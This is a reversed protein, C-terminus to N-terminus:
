WHGTTDWRRTLERVLAAADAQTSPREEIRRVLEELLAVVDVATAQGDEARRAIDIFEFFTLRAQAGTRPTPARNNRVAARQAGCPITVTNDSRLRRFPVVM